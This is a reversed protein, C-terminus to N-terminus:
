TREDDAARARALGGDELGGDAFELGVAVQNPQGGSRGQGANGEAGQRRVQGPKRVPFEVGVCGDHFRHRAAQFGLRVARQEHDVVRMAEVMPGDPLQRLRGRGAGRSDEHGATGPRHNRFFEERKPVVPYNGLEVKVRQAPDSGVLQALLDQPGVDRRPDTRQEILRGVAIREHQHGQDLMGPGAAGQAEPM